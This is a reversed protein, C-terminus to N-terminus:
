AKPAMPDELIDWTHDALLKLKAEFHDYGKSRGWEQPAILSLIDKGDKQYLYYIRGILPDFRITASYIRESLEKRRQINKAQEALVKMQEFIQNMHMDTQEEMARVALGKIKGEDEPRIVAGGREYGFTLQSTMPNEPDISQHKPAPQVNPQESGATDPEAEEPRM